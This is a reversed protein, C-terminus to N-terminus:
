PYAAHRRCGPCTMKQHPTAFRDSINSCYRAIAIGPIGSVRGFARVYREATMCWRPCIKAVGLVLVLVLVLAL